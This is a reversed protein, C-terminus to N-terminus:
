HRRLYITPEEDIQPLPRTVLRRKDDIIAGNSVCVELQEKTLGKANYLNCNHLLLVEELKEKNLATVTVDVTPTVQVTGIVAVYLRSPATDVKAASVPIWIISLLLLQLGATAISAKWINKKHWRM